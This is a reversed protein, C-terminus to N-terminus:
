ARRRRRTPGRCSRAARARRADRGHVCRRGDPPELFGRGVLRRRRERAVDVRVDRDDAAAVHPSQVASASFSRAGSSRTASSSASVTPRPGLPRFPPKRWPQHLTSPQARATRPSSPRVRPRGRRRRSRQRGHAREALVHPQALGPHELHRRRRRLVCTTARATAAARARRARLLGHGRPRRPRPASCSAANRPPTRKRSPAVTCGARSARASRAATSSAPMARWSRVGTTRISPRRTSVGRPGPGPAALDHERRVSSQRSADPERAPQRLEPAVDHQGLGHRLQEVLDAPGAALRDDVPAHEEMVEARRVVAAHQHARSPGSPVAISSRKKSSRRRRRASRPSRREEGRERLRAIVCAQPPGISTEASWRGYKPM